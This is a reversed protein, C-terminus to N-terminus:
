PKPLKAQSSFLNGLMKMAGKFNSLLTRRLEEPMNDMIVVIYEEMVNKVEEWWTPEREEIQANINELEDEVESRKLYYSEEEIDSLKGEDFWKQIDDGIKDTYSYIKHHHESDLLEEITYKHEVFIWGDKKYIKRELSKMERFVPRFKASMREHEISM